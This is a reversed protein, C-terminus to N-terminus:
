QWVTVTPDLVVSKPQCYDGDDLAVAAGADANIGVGLNTWHDMNSAGTWNMTVSAAGAKSQGLGRSAFAGNAAQWRQTGTASLSANPDGGEVVDHVIATANSSVTVTPLTSASSFNKAVTGFTSSQDVGTWSDAGVVIEEVIGGFTVVINATVNAPAKLYWLEVWQIAAGIVQSNTDLKTLAVSNFTVGTVVFGGSGFDSVGVVLLRNAGAGVAFSTITVSSVSNGTISQGVNDIAIAM